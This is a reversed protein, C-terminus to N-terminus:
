KYSKQYHGNQGTHTSTMTTKIQMERIILVTSCKKMHKKVMQIDEESFHRKLDRGVKEQITQKKHYQTTHAAQINQFDIRQWNNWKSNNM